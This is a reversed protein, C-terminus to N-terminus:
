IPYRTSYAVLSMDPLYAYSPEWDRLQMAEDISMPPGPPEPDPPHYQFKSLKDTLPGKDAKYSSCGGLMGASALLLGALALYRLVVTPNGNSRSRTSFM